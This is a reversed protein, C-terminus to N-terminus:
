KKIKEVIAAIPYLVAGAILLLVGASMLYEQYPSYTGAIEFIGRLLCSVTVAAVGAHYVDASIAPQCPIAPFLWIVVSPLLGFILPPVFLYTM